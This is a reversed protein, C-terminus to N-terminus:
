GNAVCVRPLPTGPSLGGEGAPAAPVPAGQGDRHYTPPLHTSSAISIGEDFPPPLHDNPYIHVATHRYQVCRPPAPPPPHLSPTSARARSARPCGRRLPHGNASAPWGGKGKEGARLGVEWPGGRAAAAPLACGGHRTGVRRGGATAPGGEPASPRAGAVPPHRGGGVARLRGGVRVEGKEEPRVQYLRGLTPRRAGRACSM